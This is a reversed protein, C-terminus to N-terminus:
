LREAARPRRFLIGILFQRRYLVLCARIVVLAEDRVLYYIRFDDFGKVPWTRLGALALNAIERPKGARPRAVLAKVSARVAFGFRRAIDPVGQQSYWEIQHLIDAEAATQIFLKV